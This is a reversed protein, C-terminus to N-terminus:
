LALSNAIAVFPPQDSWFGWPARVYVPNDPAVRDLDWRDPYRGEAPTAPPTLYYPPEGLPMFVLWDGPRAREAARRVLAQVDAISRAGALSPYLGRLGERDMHAHADVLGPMLTRGRLDVRRTAPGGLALVAADDGVAVVREGQVAVAQARSFAEDVVLVQGGHFIWDPALPAPEAQHSSQGTM